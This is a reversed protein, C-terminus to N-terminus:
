RRSRLAIKIDYKSMFSSTRERRLYIKYEGRHRVRAKTEVDRCRPVLNFQGVSQLQIPIPKQKSCPVPYQDGVDEPLLSEWKSSHRIIEGKERDHFVSRRNTFRAPYEKSVERRKEEKILERDILRGRLVVGDEISRKPNATRKKIRQLQPDADRM